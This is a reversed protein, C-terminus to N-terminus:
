RLSPVWELSLRLNPPPPERNGEAPHSGDRPSLGGPPYPVRLRSRDRENTTMAAREDDVQSNPTPTAIAIRHQEGRNPSWRCCLGRHPQCGVFSDSRPALGNIPCIDMRIVLM